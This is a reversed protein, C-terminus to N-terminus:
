LRVLPSTAKHFFQLLSTVPRLCLWRTHPCQLHDVFVKPRPLRVNCYREQTTRTQFSPFSGHWRAKPPVIATALFDDNINIPLISRLRATIREFGKVRKSLWRVGAMCTLRQSLWGHRLCLVARPVASYGGVRPHSRLQRQGGDEFCLTFM